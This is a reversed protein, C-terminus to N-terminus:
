NESTPENSPPPPPMGQDREYGFRGPSIHESWARDRESRTIGAVYAGNGGFREASREVMARLAEGHRPDDTTVGAILPADGCGRERLVDFTYTLADEVPRNKTAGILEEALARVDDDLPRVAIVRGFHNVTLEIASNEVDLSVYASATNGMYGFTGGLLALALMAAVAGRMWRGGSAVEVCQGVEGRCRTRVVRGDRCLVAAYGGKRELIVAKM